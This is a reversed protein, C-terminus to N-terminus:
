TLFHEDSMLMCIGMESTQMSSDRGPSPWRQKQRLLLQLAAAASVGDRAGSSRSSLKKVSSSMSPYKRLWAEMATPVAMTATSNVRPNMPAMQRQTVTSNHAAVLSATAETQDSSSTM